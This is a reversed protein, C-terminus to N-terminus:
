TSRREADVLHAHRDVSALEDDINRSLAEFGSDATVGAKAM